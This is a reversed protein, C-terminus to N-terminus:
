GLTRKYRKSITALPSLIGLPLILSSPESPDEFLNVDSKEVPPIRLRWIPAKIARGMKSLNNSHAILQRITSIIAYLCYVLNLNLQKLILLVLVFCSTDKSLALVSLNLRVTHPRIDGGRGNGPWCGFGLSPLYGKRVM